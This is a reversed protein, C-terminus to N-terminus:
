SVRLSYKWSDGSEDNCYTEPDADWTELEDKTLMFYHGVLKRCIDSVTEPTFFAQKIQYAQNTEPHKVADFTNGKKFECCLFINKILNFCQIEFREFLFNVGENTFLYYFTFELSPKILNIFSFPHVDLLSLLVKTLHIIVKECIELVFIGKGKLQKGLLVFFQLYVSEM